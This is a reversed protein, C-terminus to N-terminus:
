VQIANIKRQLDLCENHGQQLGVLLQENELYVRWYEKYYNVTENFEPMKAQAFPATDPEGESIQPLYENKSDEANQM